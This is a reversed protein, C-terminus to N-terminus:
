SYIDAPLTCFSKCYACLPHYDGNLMNEKCAHIMMKMPNSSGFKTRINKLHTRVTPPSINLAKAIQLTNESKVWFALIEKERSTLSQHILDHQDNKILTNILKPCLYKGSDMIEHIALILKKTSCTRLLYGNALHMLSELFNHCILGSIILIRLKPAAHCIRKIMEIGQPSIYSLETIILEPTNVRIHELLPTLRNPMVELVQIEKEKDLVSALSEAMLRQDYSISINIKKSSHM